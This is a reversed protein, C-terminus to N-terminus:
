LESPSTRLLYHVPLYLSLSEAFINFVFLATMSLKGLAQECSQRLKAHHSRRTERDSLIKQLARELFLTYGAM